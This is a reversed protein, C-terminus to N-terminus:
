QASEASAPGCQNAVPKMLIPRCIANPRRARATATAATTRMNLDNFIKSGSGAPGYGQRFIAAAASAMNPSPNHSSREGSPALRLNMPWISIAVPAQQNPNTEQFRAEGPAFHNNLNVAERRDEKRQSLRRKTAQGTNRMATQRRCHHKDQHRRALQIEVAFPKGDAVREAVGQGNARPFGIRGRGSGSARGLLFGSYFDPVGRRLCPTRRGCVRNQWCAYRTPLRRSFMAVAGRPRFGHNGCKDAATRGNQSNNPVQRGTSMPRRATSKKARRKTGRSM